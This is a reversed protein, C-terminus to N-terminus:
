QKQAGEDEPLSAVTAEFTEQPSRFTCGLAAAETTDWPTSAAPPEAPASGDEADGDVLTAVGSAPKLAKLMSCLDRHHLSGAVAMVRKDSHKANAAAIHIAAVDRVDVYTLNTNPAKAPKGNLLDYIKRSSTNLRPQLLPGFIQCLCITCLSFASEAAVSWAAKEALAKSLPYWANWGRCKEVDTWDASSWGRTADSPETGVSVSASSSTVVVFNVGADSAAGLVKRTGNVAPDVLEKQGDEVNYFFPSATHLLVECGQFAAAFAARDSKLLDADVITLNEEAGALRRLHAVKSDTPKRM